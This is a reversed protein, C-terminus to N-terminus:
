RQCTKAIPLLELQTMEGKLVFEGYDLRLNRSVGNDYLDFGLVYAPTKDGRGQEFYSMIVPWRPLKALGDQQAAPELGATQSPAIRRGVIALTEYVKRGTDSGDFVRMPLLTRGSRAAGILEKMQANPFAADAFNLKAPRPSRLRISLPGGARREASGDVSTRPRGPTYNDNRFRFVRGDGSEYNASRLDSTKIGSESSEVVTVQRFKVTYGECANGSFEIAIRGRASQLSRM